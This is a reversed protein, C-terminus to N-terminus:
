CGCARSTFITSPLTVMGASGLLAPARAADGAANADVISRWSSRSMASRRSCWRRSSSRRWRSAWDAWSAAV